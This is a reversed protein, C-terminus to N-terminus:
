VEVPVGVISGWETWSGDYVRVPDLGVLQTLAFWVLTARHSLRCYCVVDGAPEGALGDLEARIDAPSRFTDDDNLLRRYYLHRAGPIRGKREAGHDFDPLPKVREGRYEEPARVDLLLRRPDGLHALVDDRGVRSTRNESAPPYAVPTVPAQATDFPRGELSWATKCGDVVRTDPHGTMTLVWFAYTSYQPKDSILAVTHNRAVGLTGLRDAMLEPTPFQRDTPHWCLDKWYVWVSGPVKPGAETEPASGVDIIRLSPDALRDFLWDTSVLRDTM